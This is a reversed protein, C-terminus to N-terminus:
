DLFRGKWEPRPLACSEEKGFWRYRNRAVWSYVLDRIVKPILSIIKELFAYKGGLGKLVHLFADSKMFYQGDPYAIIFSDFANTPLNKNELFAQGIPSQLSAFQFVGDFDRYLIEQVTQNCLNCVGDFFIIPKNSNM